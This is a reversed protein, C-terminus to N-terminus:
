KEGTAVYAWLAEIEDPKIQGRWPPMASKGNTVSDIFRSRQDRPFERLNFLDPNSMREGHCPTCFTAFTEAGRKVQAPPFTEQALASAATLASIMATLFLKNFVIM